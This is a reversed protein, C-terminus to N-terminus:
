RELRRAELLRRARARIAYGPTGFQKSLARVEEAIVRRPKMESGGDLVRLIANDEETTWPQTPVPAKRM